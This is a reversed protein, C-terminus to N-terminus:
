FVDECEFEIMGAGHPLPQSFSFANYAGSAVDDAMTKCTDWVKHGAKTDLQGDAHLASWVAQRFFKVAADRRKRTIAIYPTKITYLKM